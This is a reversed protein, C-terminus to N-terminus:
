CRRRRRHPHVALRSFNSRRTSFTKSFSLHRMPRAISRKSFEGRRRFKSNTIPNADSSRIRRSRRLRTVRCSSRPFSPSTASGERVRRRRQDAGAYLIRRASNGDGIYPTLNREKVTEPRTSGIETLKPYKKIPIRWGQDDTLHWHFYNFKYQSMLDIFKEVFEVAHLSAGRGLHMGRYQFRPEDEIKVAPVGFSLTGAQVMQMLTQIAYFQGVEAGSIRILNKDVALGTNDPISRRQQRRILFSRTKM